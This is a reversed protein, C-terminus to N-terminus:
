AFAPQTQTLAQRLRNMEHEMREMKQMQIAIGARARDEAVLRAAREENLMAELNPGAAAQPKPAGNPFKGGGHLM